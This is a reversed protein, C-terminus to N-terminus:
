IEWYLGACASSRKWIIVDGADKLVEAAVRWGDMEIDQEQGVCSEMMLVSARLGAEARGNRPYGVQRRSLALLWAWSYVPSETAGGVRKLESPMLVGWFYKVKNNKNKNNCLLIILM